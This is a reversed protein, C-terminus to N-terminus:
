NAKPALTINGRNKAILKEGIGRVNGLGDISKFPGNQKRYEVIALAKATGIGSLNEALESASMSNINVTGAIASGWAAFLLTVLLPKVLKM